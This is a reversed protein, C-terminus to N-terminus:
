CAQRRAHYAHQLHGTKQLLLRSKSGCQWKCDGVRYMNAAM